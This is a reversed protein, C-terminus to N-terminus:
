DLETGCDACTGVLEGTGVRVQPTMRGECVPCAVARETALNEWADVIVEDLTKVSDKKKKGADQAFVPLTFVLLPLLLINQSRQM